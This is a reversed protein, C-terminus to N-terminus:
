EIEKIKEQLLTWFVEIHRREMDIQALSVRLYICNKIQTHTIFVKGSQNLKNMLELNQDNTGNYRFCLLAFHRPQFLLLKPSLTSIWEELEAALALHKSLVSRMGDAGYLRFIFWIKLARFPRGLGPGWDRYNTVTQFTPTKLYEPELSFTKLLSEKDKLLFVSCGHHAFLWKHANIVISDAKEIGNALTRQVPLALTAGAYAADIHLWLEYRKSIESLALLNDLSGTGTTGWAGALFFPLHGSALDKQIQSVLAHIDISLDNNVKIKRLNRSGLGMIKAAKEISSHAEESCYATLKRNEFGNSNICFGTAKERATVMATLTSTSAYDLLVGTFTPPLNWFDVLWNIMREELETAAPSTLWSMGQIGLAASIIEALLSPFSAHAPFYAFFSPHQWHTIGPLILNEFDKFVSAFAEANAPYKEPLKEYIAGPALQPVVPYREINKRYEVLWQIVRELAQEQEEWNM